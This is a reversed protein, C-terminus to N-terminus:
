IESVTVPYNISVTSLGTLHLFNINTFTSIQLNTLAYLHAVVKNNHGHGKFDQRPWIESFTHHLFNFKPNNMPLPTCNHHTMTHNGVM